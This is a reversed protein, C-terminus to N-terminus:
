PLTTSTEKDCKSTLIQLIVSPDVNYEPKVSISFHLNMSNRIGSEVIKEHMAEM